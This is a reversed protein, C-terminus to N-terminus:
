KGGPHEFSVLQAIEGAGPNTYRIVHCYLRTEEGDQTVRTIRGSVSGAAGQSVVQEVRIRRVPTATARAVADAIAARGLIAGAGREWAAAEALMGTDLVGVGMLALAITEAQVDTPDALAGAARIVEPTM